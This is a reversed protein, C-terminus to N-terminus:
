IIDTYYYIHSALRMHNLITFDEVTLDKLNAVPINCSRQMMEVSSSPSRFWGGSGYEDAIVGTHGGPYQDDLTRTLLLNNIILPPQYEQQRCQHDINTRQQMHHLIDCSQLDLACIYYLTSYTQCLTRNDPPFHNLLLYVLAIDQKVSALHFMLSCELTKCDIQQPYNKSAFSLLSQLVYVNYLKTAHELPTLGNRCVPKTITSRVHNYFRDEQLISDLLITALPYLVSHIDSAKLTNGHGSNFYAKVANSILTSSSSIVDCLLSDSALMDHIETDLLITFEESWHTIASSNKGLLDINESYERLFESTKESYLDVGSFLVQLICFWFAM